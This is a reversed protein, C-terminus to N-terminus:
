PTSSKRERLHKWWNLRREWKIAESELVTAEGAPAAPPSPQQGTTAAAERARAADILLQAMKDAVIEELTVSLWGDNRV